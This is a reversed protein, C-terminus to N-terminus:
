WSAFPRNHWFRAHNHRYADPHPLRNEGFRFTLAGSEGTVWIQAGIERYRAVIDHKPFGYRNRYGATIVAHDPDIRSVFAPTSSTRSGHHPVVVVEAKHLNASNLLHREAAKEIDGLLLVSGGVTEIRLVCSADNGRFGNGEVDPHIVSFQVGDWNWHQTEYCREAPYESFILQCM